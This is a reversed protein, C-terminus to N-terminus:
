SKSSLTGYIERWEKSFELFESEEQLTWGHPANDHPKVTNKKLSLFKKQSLKPCLDFQGCLQLYFEYNQDAYALDFIYIRQEKLHQIQFHIDCMIRNGWWAIKGIRTLKSWQEFEDSTPIVRGFFHSPKLGVQPQYGVVKNRDRYFLDEIFFGKNYLSQVIFRPEAVAVIINEPYLEQILHDIGHSFYPSFVVSIESKEWDELIGAKFLNIIASVDIPLNNFCVYRYFAEAESFREISAAVGLHSKFIDCLWRTGSRGVLTGLVLRKGAKINQAFLKEVDNPINFAQHHHSKTLNFPGLKM